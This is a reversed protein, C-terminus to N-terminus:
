RRTSASGSTHRDPQPPPCDVSEGCLPGALVIEDSQHIM